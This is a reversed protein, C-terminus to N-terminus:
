RALNAPHLSSGLKEEVVAMSVTKSMRVPMPRALAAPMRGNRGPRAAPAKAAPAQAQGAVTAPLVLATVIALLGLSIVFRRRM